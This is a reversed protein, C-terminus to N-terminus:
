RSNRARSVSSHQADDEEGEKDSRGEGRGCLLPAVPSDVLQEGVPERGCVAVAGVAVRCSTLVTSPGPSPDDVLEVVDLVEAEVCDPDRGDDCIDFPVCRIALRIM